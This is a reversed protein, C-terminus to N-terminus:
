KKTPIVTLMMTKGDRKIVVPIKDGPKHFGMAAIYDYLDKVDTTGFRLIIDGSKMGAKEAPGGPTITALRLMENETTYDPLAGIDIKFSLMEPAENGKVDTFAIKNDYM